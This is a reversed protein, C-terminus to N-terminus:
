SHSVKYSTPALNRESKTSKLANNERGTTGDMKVLYPTKPRLLELDKKTDYKHQPGPDKRRAEADLTIFAAKEELPKVHGVIKQDKLENMKIKYTAPGPQGKGQKGCQDFLTIRDGKQWRICSNDDTWKKIKQYRGPASKTQKAKRM